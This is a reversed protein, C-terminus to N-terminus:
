EAPTVAQTEGGKKGVRNTDRSGMCKPCILRELIFHGGEIEVDGRGGCGDCLAVPRRDPIRNTAALELALTAADANKRKHCKGCDPGVNIKAAYEGPPLSDPTGTLELPEMCSGCVQVRM